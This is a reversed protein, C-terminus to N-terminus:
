RSGCPPPCRDLSGNDGLDGSPHLAPLRATLECSLWHAPPNQSAALRNGPETGTLDTLADTFLVNTLPQLLLHRCPVWSVFYLCPRNIPFVNHAAPGPGQLSTTSALPRDTGPTVTIVPTMVTVCLMM